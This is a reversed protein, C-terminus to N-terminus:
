RYCGLPARHHGRYLSRGGFLSTRCFSNTVILMSGPQLRTALDDNSALAFAENWRRKRRRLAESALDQRTEVFRGHEQGVCASNEGGLTGQNLRRSLRHAAGAFQDARVM